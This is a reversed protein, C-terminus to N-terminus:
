SNYKYEKYFKILVVVVFIAKILLIMIYKVYFLTIKKNLSFLKSKFWFYAQYGWNTYLLWGYLTIWKVRFEREHLTLISCNLM